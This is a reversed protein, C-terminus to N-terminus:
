VGLISSWKFARVGPSDLGACYNRYLAEQDVYVGLRFARRAFSCLRSRLDLDEGAADGSHVPGAQEALESADDSSFKRYKSYIRRAENMIVQYLYTSLPGTERGGQEDYIKLSNVIKVWCFSRFEDETEYLNWRSFVKSIMVNVDEIFDPTFKGTSLYSNFGSRGHGEM